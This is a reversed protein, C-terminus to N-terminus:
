MNETSVTRNFIWIMMISYIYGTSVTKNFIWIMM